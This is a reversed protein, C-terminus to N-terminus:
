KQATQQIKSMLHLYHLAVLKLQSAHCVLVTSICCNTSNSLGAFFTICSSSSVNQQNTDSLAM